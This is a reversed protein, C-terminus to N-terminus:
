GLDEEFYQCGCDSCAWNTRDTHADGSHGCVCYKEIPPM